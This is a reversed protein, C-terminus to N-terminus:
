IKKLFSFRQHPKAIKPHPLTDLNQNVLIAYSTSIPLFGQKM